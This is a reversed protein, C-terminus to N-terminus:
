GRLASTLAPVHYQPEGYPAASIEMAEALAGLIFNHPAGSPGTSLSRGTKFFGDCSGALMAPVSKYDHGGVSMNNLFLVATGDLMSRDGEREEKLRGILQAWQEFFWTDMRSKAAGGAHAAAHLDGLGLWKFHLMDNSGADGVQLVVVRTLDAALAAIALERELTLFAPFNRDDKPDLRRGVDPVRCAATPGTGAPAASPTLGKEIERVSALHSAVRRRDDSGLTQGFRELDRAVLDLVSRRARRLREVQPNPGVALRGAFLDDFLRYPDQQPHVPLGGERWVATTPQKVWAGLTLAVGPQGRSRLAAAVHQDLSAGGAIHTYPLGSKAYRRGTLLGQHTNHGDKNGGPPSDTLFQYRVRDILLLEKRHPELAQMPAPLVFGTDTPGVPWSKLDVLWGNPWIVIFLRKPGKRLCASRAGPPELLRPLLAGGVGLARLLARRSLYTRRV